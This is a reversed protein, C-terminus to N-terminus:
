YRSKIHFWAHCSFIMILLFFYLHVAFLNKIGIRYRNVETLKKKFKFIFSFMNETIFKLLILVKIKFGHIIDWKIEFRINYEWKELKDIQTLQPM